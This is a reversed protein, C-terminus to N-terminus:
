RTGGRACSIVPRTMGRVSSRTVRNHGSKIEYMRWGLPLRSDEWKKFEDMYRQWKRVETSKMFGKAKPLRTARKDVDVCNEPLIVTDQNENEV